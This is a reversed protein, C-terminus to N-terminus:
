YHPPPPEESPTGKKNAEEINLLRDALHTVSRTLKDIEDWQKRVIENLEDLLKTQHAVQIELDAITQNQESSTM